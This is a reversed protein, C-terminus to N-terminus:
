GPRRRRPGTARKPDAPRPYRAAVLGALFQDAKALHAHRDDESMEDLGKTLDIVM